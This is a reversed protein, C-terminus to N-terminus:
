QWYRWIFIGAFYLHKVTSIYIPYNMLIFLIAILSVELM